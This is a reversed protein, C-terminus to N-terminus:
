ETGEARAENATLFTLPNEIGLNKLLADVQLEGFRNAMNMKRDTDYNCADDRLSVEVVWGAALQAAMTARLKDYETM